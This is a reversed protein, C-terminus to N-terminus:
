DMKLEIPTGKYELKVTKDAITKVIMDRYTDGQYLVKDDIMCCMGKPTATISWLELGMGIVQAEQRIQEAQQSQDGSGSAPNYDLERKFPNKKLEDVAVQEVNNFRYFRGTVSDMETDMESQMVKLQALAAELQEQDQSPEASATAPTAKKVMFWIGLAGIAFLTVLIMTSQRIKQGQGSVTVYNNVNSDAQDNDPMDASAPLQNPDKLYSLM